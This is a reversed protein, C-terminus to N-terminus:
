KGTADRQMLSKGKRVIYRAKFENLSDASYLVTFHTVIPNIVGAKRYKRLSMRSIQLEVAAKRETFLQEPM